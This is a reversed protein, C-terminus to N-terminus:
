GQHGGVVVREVDAGPGGFGEGSCGLCFWEVGEGAEARASEYNGNM